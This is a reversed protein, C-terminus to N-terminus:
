NAEQFMNLVDPDEVMKGFFLHLQEMPGSDLSMIQFCRNLTDLKILPKGPMKIKFTKFRVFYKILFYLHRLLSLLNGTLFNHVQALQPIANGSLKLKFKRITNRRYVFHENELLDDLHDLEGLHRDPVVVGM